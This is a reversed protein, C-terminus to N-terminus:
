EAPAPAERPEEDEDDTPAFHEVALDRLILVGTYLGVLGAVTDADRTDRTFVRDVARVQEPTPALLAVDPTVPAADTTTTVCVPHYPAAILIEASM